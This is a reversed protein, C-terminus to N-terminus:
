DRTGRPERSASTASGPSERAPGSGFQVDGRVMSTRTDDDDTLNDNPLIAASASAPLRAKGPASAACFVAVTRPLTVSASPAAGTTAACTVTVPVRNPATVWGLPSETMVFTGAPDCVM